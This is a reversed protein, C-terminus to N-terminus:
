SARYRPPCTRWSSGLAAQDSGNYIQRLQDRREAEYDAQRMAAMNDIYQGLAAHDDPQLYDKYKDLTSTALDRHQEALTQIGAKVVEGQIHKTLDSSAAARSDEDQHVGSIADITHPVISLVTDLASPDQRVYGPRGMRSTPSTRCWRMPATKAM